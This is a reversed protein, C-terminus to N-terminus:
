KYIQTYQIASKRIGMTTNWKKKGVKTKYKYNAITIVSPFCVVVPDYVLSEIAERPIFFLPTVTNATPTPLPVSLVSSPSIADLGSYTKMDEENLCRCFMERPTVLRDHPPLSKYSM